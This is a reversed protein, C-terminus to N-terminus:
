AVIETQLLGMPERIKKKERQLIGVNPTNM